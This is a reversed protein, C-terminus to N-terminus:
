KSCNSWVRMALASTDKVLPVAACSESVELESEDSSVEEFEPESEPESEEELEELEEVEGCDFSVLGARCAGDFYGEVKIKVWELEAAGRRARRRARRRGDRSDVVATRVRDVAEEADERRARLLKRAPAVEMRIVVSRAARPSSMDLM